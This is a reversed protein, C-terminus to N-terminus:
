GRHEGAHHLNVDVGGVQEVMGQLAQQAAVTMGGTINDMDGVVDHLAAAVFM